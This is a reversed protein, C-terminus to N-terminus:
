NRDEGLILAWAREAVQEKTGSFERPSGERSLVTVSNTDAGFGSGPATINNAVIFDLNKRAMKDGANALLDHSEAAFGVLVQGPRKREGLSAAIDPNQVLEFSISDGGKRKIKKEQKSPARFDGVAAAKVIFDMADSQSLAVDKMEEASTVPTVNFGALNPFSVPGHVFYVEAGRYWAARAMAYGMKGTSPNSLFRVPDLFEWTPGATVMVKKGILNKQPCLVRWLEEMIVEVSPLRGKGEYGCALAGTDPDVVVVGRESLAAMNARTSPHNLMHVNMAPFVLVPATAALLLSSLLEKGSGGATTSLTQATCPAVLIADAWDALTIHPIEWGRDDSLFDEQRWVKKGALTSLVLPSVFREGDSTLVVEVQCGGKILARVIEPAKYASIGGTVGLVIKKNQKWDIMARKRASMPAARM